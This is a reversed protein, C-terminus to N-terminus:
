QVPIGFARLALSRDAGRVVGVAGRYAIVVFSGAVPRGVWAGFAALTDGLPLLQRQLALADSPGLLYLGSSPSFAALAATVAAVFPDSGVASPDFTILLQVNKSAVDLVPGLLQATCQALAIVVRGGLHSHAGGM